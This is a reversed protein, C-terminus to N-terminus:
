ENVLWEALGFNKYDAIVAPAIFNKYQSEPDIVADLLHNEYYGRPTKLVFRNVYLTGLIKGSLTVSGNCYVIGDIEAGTSITLLANNDEAKYSGCLIGGAIGANESIYCFANTARNNYVSLFSPYNLRVGEEVLLSDRAFAQLSGEFDKEIIIKPAIIIINDTVCTKRLIITSDSHIIIKGKLIIDKMEFIGDHEYSLAKTSFNQIISDKRNFDSINGLSDTLVVDGDFIKSLWELLKPSLEPLNRSSTKEKGYILQTGKYPKGDIYVSRLGLAPIYCNGTLKTEGAISLYKGKDSLYLGTKGNAFLYQGALATKQYKLDKWGSSGSILYFAGWQEKTSNSQIEQDITDTPITNIEDPLAALAAYVSSNTHDVLKQLSSYHLVEVQSYYNDTILLMLLVSVIFSIFIVLYLSNGRITDKKTYNNGSLFKLKSILRM